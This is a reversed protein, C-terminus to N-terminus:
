VGAMMRTDGGYTPSVNPRLILGLIVSMAAIITGMQAETLPLGFAVAGTLITQVAGTMASVVIPRTVLAVILAMVGNAITMAWAASEETLGLVGFAVAVALLAQLGYLIAAPERGFIKFGSDM